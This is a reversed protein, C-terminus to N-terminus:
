NSIMKAVAEETTWTANAIFRFSTMADANGDWGPVIASATADTVVAIEFGQELLDRLHSEVCLNGSMGALIVRDIGRKRLQLVLDNNQPGYVKHPSALITEGDEIYPKYLELWDAGSGAFGTQDLAGPRDFMGINHMLVEM